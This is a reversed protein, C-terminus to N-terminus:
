RGYAVAYRSFHPLEANKIKLKGVKEKLSIKEVKMKEWYGTENNEYYLGISKKDLGHLDLGKAKITLLAPKSFVTGHPGFTTSLIQDDLSMSLTMDESLARKEVELTISVQSESDLKLDQNYEGVDGDQEEGYDDNTDAIWNHTLELVGGKKAKIFKEVTVTKKLSSNGDASSLFIFNLDSQLIANAEQHLGTAPDFPTRQACGSITVLATLLVILMGALIYKSKKM